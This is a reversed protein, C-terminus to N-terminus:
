QSTVSSTRCNCRPTQPRRSQHRAVQYDAYLKETAEFEVTLPKGHRGLGGGDPNLSMSPM